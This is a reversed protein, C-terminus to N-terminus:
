VFPNFALALSLRLPVDCSVTGAKLHRLGITFTWSRLSTKRCPLVVDGNRKGPSVSDRTFAVGILAQL